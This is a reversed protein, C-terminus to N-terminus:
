KQIGEHDAQSTRYEDIIYDYFFGNKLPPVVFCRISERYKELYIHVRISLYRNKKVKNDFIILELLRRNASKFFFLRYAEEEKVEKDETETSITIIM